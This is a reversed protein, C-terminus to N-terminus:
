KNLAYVKVVRLFFETIWEMDCDWGCSSTYKCIVYRDLVGLFLM